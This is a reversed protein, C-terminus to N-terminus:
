SHYRPKAKVLSTSNFSFSVNKGSPVVSLNKIVPSYLDMGLGSTIVNNANDKTLDRVKGDPSLNYSLQYQIM